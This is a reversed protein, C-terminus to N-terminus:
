VASSCDFSVDAYHSFNFFLGLLCVKFGPVKPVAQILSFTDNFQMSSKRSHSQAYAIPM